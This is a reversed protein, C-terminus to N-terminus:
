RREGEAARDHEAVVDDLAGSAWDEIWDPWAFRTMAAWTLAAAVSVLAHFFLGIPMFGFVATDDEWWWFDYHLVALLAVTAWIWTKARGGPASGAESM